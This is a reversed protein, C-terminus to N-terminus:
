EHIPAVQANRDNGRTMPYVSFLSPDVANPWFAIQVPSIVWQVKKGIWRLESHRPLVWESHGPDTCQKKRFRLYLHPGHRHPTFPETSQEPNEPAIM